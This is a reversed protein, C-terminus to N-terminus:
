GNYDLGKKEYFEKNKELENCARSATNADIFGCELGDKINKSYSAYNIRICHLFVSVDIFGRLLQLYLRNNEFSHEYIIIKTRKLMVQKFSETDVSDTDIYGNPREM